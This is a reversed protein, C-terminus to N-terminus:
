LILEPDSISHHQQFLEMATCDTLSVYPHRKQIERKQIPHMGFCTGVILANPSRELDFGLLKMNLEHFGFGLFFVRSSRWLIENARANTSNNEYVTKFNRQGHVRASLKRYNIAQGLAHRRGDEDDLLVISPGACDGNYSGYDWPERERALEPASAEFPLASLRGHIHIVELSSLNRFAQEMGGSSPRLHRALFYELSRDYNFTIIKLASYRDAPFNHFLFRYFDKDAPLELHPNECEYLIEAILAKAAPDHRPFERLFADVSYPKHDKLDQLLDRQAHDNSGHLREMIKEVLSLGSPYGYPMSTGAGLVLTTIM